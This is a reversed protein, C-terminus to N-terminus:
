GESALKARTLVVCQDPNVDFLRCTLLRDRVKVDVLDVREYEAARLCRWYLTGQYQGSARAPGPSHQAVLKACREHPYVPWVLAPDVTVAFAPATIALAAVTATIIRKM